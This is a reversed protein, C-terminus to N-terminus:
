APLALGKFVEHRHWSVHSRHPLVTGPRPLLQQQHLAYVQRGSETRATFSSSVVIRTEDLGLLGRDFLKHHHVAALAALRLATGTSSGAASDRSPVLSVSYM